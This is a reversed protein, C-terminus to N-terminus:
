CQISTFFVWIQVSLCGLIKSHRDDISLKTKSDTSAYKFVKMMSGDPFVINGKDVREVTFNAM